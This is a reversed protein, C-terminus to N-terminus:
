EISKRRFTRSILSRSPRLESSAASRKPMRETEADTFGTHEAPRFTWFGAPRPIFGRCFDIHSFKGKINLLFGISKLM